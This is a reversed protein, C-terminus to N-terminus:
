AKYDITHFDDLDSVPQDTDTDPESTDEQESHPESSYQQNQQKRKRQDKRKAARTQGINGLSDIPKIIKLDNEAMEFM